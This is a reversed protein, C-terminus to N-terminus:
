RGTGPESLRFQRPTCGTYTRFIKTFYSQDEFGAAIAVDIIDFNTQTLLQRSREIRIHNLFEKFSYGSLQKFITSFYSPNLHVYSAAEQLTLQSAYHRLIYGKAQCVAMAPASLAPPHHIQTLFFDGIQRLLEQLAHRSMYQELVPQYIAQFQGLVALSAGHEILVRSLVSVTELLRNKDLLLHGPSSQLAYNLLKEVTQSVPQFLGRAALALLQEEQEYPFHHVPPLLLLSFDTTLIGSSHKM